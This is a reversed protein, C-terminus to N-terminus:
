GIVIKKRKKKAKGKVEKELDQELEDVSLDDEFGEGNEGMASENTANDELWVEDTVVEAEALNDYDYVHQGDSDQKMRQAMVQIAAEMDDMEIEDWRTENLEDGVSVERFLQLLQERHKRAERAERDFNIKVKTSATMGKKAPQTDAMRDRSFKASKQRLDEFIVDFEAGGSAYDRETLRAFDVYLDKDHTELIKERLEYLRRERDIELNQWDDPLGYDKKAEGLCSATKKVSIEATAPIKECEKVGVLMRGPTEMWMRFIEDFFGIVGEDRWRAIIKTSLFINILDGRLFELDLQKQFIQASFGRKAGSATKTEMIVESSAKMLYNSLKENQFLVKLENCGKALYARNAERWALASRAVGSLMVKFDNKEAWRAIKNHYCCEPLVLANSEADFVERLKERMRKVQAALEEMEFFAAASYYYPLVVLEVNGSRVLKKVRKILEADWREAQELWMGSVALSIRLKPYRQVNRELLALFPQYEEENAKRFSEEGGYYGREWKDASQLEYPHHLLFCSHLARM